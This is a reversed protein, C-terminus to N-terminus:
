ISGKKDPCIDGRYNGPDWDLRFTEIDEISFQHPFVVVDDISVRRLNHEKYLEFNGSSILEKKSKLFERPSPVAMGCHKCYKDVQDRFQEPTKKWWDKEIPYGGPGDLITDIAYAVECFFAGKPGITPCWTKQVWCDDILKEKYEEEEIIDQIAMTIPQHKCINRQHENHENYAVFAFTEDILKKFKRYRKGGTTWLGFSSRPCFSKLLQCIKEFQPHLTPEGGIIGIRTPWGELSMLAKELVGLSMFFNQDKRIHRNFRSCYICDKWCVNTIDIQCFWAEWIPKM